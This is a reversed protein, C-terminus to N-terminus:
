RPTSDEPWKWRFPVLLQSKFDKPYQVERKLGLTKLEHDFEPTQKQFTGLLMDWFNFSIGYNLASRKRPLHHYRHVSAFAFVYALPGLRMEINSHALLFIIACIYGTVFGVHFPMGILFLPIFGICAEFLKHLPHKMLGNLSYVREVSHHVSHLRWLFNHRHSLYHGLTMLADSALLALLVQPAFSLNPWLHFLPTVTRSQLLYGWLVMFLVICVHNLLGHAIDRKLDQHDENWSPNYPIIREFLLSIAIAALILPLFYHDPRALLFIPSTFVLLFTPAYLAQLLGKM